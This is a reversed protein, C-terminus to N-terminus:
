FPLEAVPAPPLQAIPRQSALMQLKGRPRMTNKSGDVRYTWMQGAPVDVKKLPQVRVKLIHSPVIFRELEKLKATRVLLVEAGVDATVVDGDIDEVQCPETLKFIYAAWAGFKEHPPMEICDLLYGVLPTGKCTDPAYIRRDTPLEEWEDVPEQKALAAAQTVAPETSESQSGNTKENKKATKVAETTATM